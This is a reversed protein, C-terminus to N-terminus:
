VHLVFFPPARGACGFELQVRRLRLTSLPRLEAHDAALFASACMACVKASSRSPPIAEIEHIQTKESSWEAQSSPAADPFANPDALTFNGHGDNLLIAITQNLWATSVVLDLAHDGNVDRPSIQLGGAPGTVGFMQRNGSTLEFRIWYRSQPSAGMGTQVTALDVQQDGDFDAIAFQWTVDATLASSGSRQPSAADTSSALGAACWLVLLSLVAYRRLRTGRAVEVCWRAFRLARAQSTVIGGVEWGRVTSCVFFTAVFVSWCAAWHGNSGVAYWGEGAFCCDALIAGRFRWPTGHDGKEGLEKATQVEDDANGRGRRALVLAGVNESPEADSEEDEGEGGQEDVGDGM